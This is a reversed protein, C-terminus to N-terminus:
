PILPFYNYIFPILIDPLQDSLIDVSGGPDHHIIKMCNPRIHFVMPFILEVEFFILLGVEEHFVPHMFNGGVGVILFSHDPVTRISENQLYVHPTILPPESRSMKPCVYFPSLEPQGRM